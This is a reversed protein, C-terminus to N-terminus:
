TITEDEINLYFINLNKIQDAPIVFNGGQIPRFESSGDESFQKKRARFLVISELRDHHPSYFYERLFGSYIINSNTLVDVYLVDVDRSEGPVGIKDLYEASFIICWSNTTNFLNFNLHWKKKQSTGRAFKGLYFAYLIVWINYWAFQKFYQRYEADSINLQEGILVRYILEFQVEKRDIYELGLVAFFHFAISFFLGNFILEETPISRSNQKSRISTSFSKIFIAGPLLLILLLLASLALSPM